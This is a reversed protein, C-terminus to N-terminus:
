KVNDVHDFVKGGCVLCPIYFMEDIQKKDVLVCNKTCKLAWECDHTHLKANSLNYVVVDSRIAKRSISTEIFVNEVEQAFSIGSVLFCLVLSILIKKM